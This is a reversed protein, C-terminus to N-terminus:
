TGPSQDDGDSDEGIVETAVLFGSIVLGVTGIVLPLFGFGVLKEGNAERGLGPKASSSSYVVGNDGARTNAQAAVPLVAMSAAAATLMMRTIFKSMSIAERFAKTSDSVAVCCTQCGRSFLYDFNTFSPHNFWVLVFPERGRGSPAKTATFTM